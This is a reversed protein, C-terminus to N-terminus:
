RRSTAVTPNQFVYFDAFSTDNPYNSDWPYPNDEKAILSWSSVNNEIWDTFKRHRVHPNHTKQDTNSSYIIVFQNSCAFLNTMYADFVSDEVLHYIVDLSLTLEANFRKANDLFCVPCFLYFSKNTEDGFREICQKIANRSVDLGTYEAFNVHQLQAGDGCGFEIASPIAHTEMFRNVFAAKYLGLRNYSGPGSDHGRAYRDEWYKRSGPFTMHDRLAILHKVFPLRRIIHRSM